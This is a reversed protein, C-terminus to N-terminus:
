PARTLQQAARAAIEGLGSDIKEAPMAYLWPMGQWQSAHPLKGLGSDIKEAPMAYLWPQELSTRLASDATSRPRRSSCGDPLPRTAAVSSASRSCSSCFIGSRHMSDRKRTGGGPRLMASAPRPSCPADDTKHPIAAGRERAPAALEIVALAPRSDFTVNPMPRSRELAARVLAAVRYVAHVFKGYPLTLFLGLVVGLHVALLTGM